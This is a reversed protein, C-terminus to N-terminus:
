KAIESMKEGQHHKKIALLNYWPQQKVMFVDSGPTEKNYRQSLVFPRHSHQLEPMLTKRMDRAIKNTYMEFVEDSFEQDPNINAEAEETRMTLVWEPDAIYLGPPLSRRQDVIYSLIVGNCNQWWQLHVNMDITGYRNRIDRTEDFPLWWDIGAEFPEGVAFDDSLVLIDTDKHAALEEPTRKGNWVAHSLGGILVGVANRAQLIHHGIRIGELGKAADPFQPDKLTQLLQMLYKMEVKMEQKQLQTQVPRMSLSMGMM